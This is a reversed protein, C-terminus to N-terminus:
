NIILEAFEAEESEFAGCVCEGMSELCVSSSAFRAAIYKDYRLKWM